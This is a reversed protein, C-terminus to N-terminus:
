AQKNEYLFPSSPLCIIRAYLDETIALDHMRPNNQYMKLTHMPQWLPRVSIKQLMLHNILDNRQEAYDPKLKIANLWYNSVSNEPESVFDVFPSENFVIQYQSALKRKNALYQDLKQLQGVGLAANINPMRFNYAIEDHEFEYPHVLKATTTLHKIKKGLADDNTAIAGGGGTTIIKNGNFSLIAADSFNGLSKGEYTTGLSEACDEILLLNYKKALAQLAKIPAPHGFIHVPIMARIPRGTMKNIFRGDQNFQGVDALYKDLKEADIGLTDHEAEVFHAIGGAHHVANATAVFTLSPVLVEDGDNIGLTKLAMYLAVTGSSVAIVHKVGLIDALRQEFESVFKGAYSVWNTKVCELVRSEEEADFCPEHLNFVSFRQPLVTQIAQSIDHNLRDNSQM